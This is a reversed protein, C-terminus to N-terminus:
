RIKKFIAKGILDLPLLISLLIFCTFISIKLLLIPLFIISTAIIIATSIIFYKWWSNNKLSFKEVKLLKYSTIMNFIFFITNVLFLTLEFANHANTKYWIMLFLILIAFHEYDLAKITRKM